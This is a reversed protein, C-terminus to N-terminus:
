FGVRVGDVGGGVVSPVEGAERDRVEVRVRPRPIEVEAGAFVAAGAGEPWALEAGAEPGLQFAASADSEGADDASAVVRTARAGARLRVALPSSRPTLRVAVGFSLASFTVLPDDLRAAFRLGLELALPEFPSWWPRLLAGLRPGGRDLGPGGYAAGDFGLVSGPSPASAPEVVSPEASPQAPTREAPRALEPEISLVQAAAILGIARYREVLTDDLAFRVSRAALVPEEAAERLEIRATRQAEDEFVVVVRFRSATSTDTDVALCRGPGLVGSCTDAAESLPGGAARVEIVVAEAPLVVPGITARARGQREYSSNV